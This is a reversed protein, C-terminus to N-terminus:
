HKSRGFSAVTGISGGVGLAILLFFLFLGAVVYQFAMVAYAIIVPLYFGFVLLAVALFALKIWMWIKRRHAVAQVQEELDRANDRAFGGDNLWEQIEQPTMNDKM